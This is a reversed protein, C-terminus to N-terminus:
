VWHEKIWRGPRTCMAEPPKEHGHFYVIRADGLGHKKVQGKYSVVEGPRRRRPVRAAAPAAVGHRERRALARLHRGQGGAGDGGRQLGAGAYPDRPLAIM